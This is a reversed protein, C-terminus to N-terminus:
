EHDLGPERKGSDDRRADRVGAGEAVGVLESERSVMGRKHGVQKTTEAVEKGWVGSM